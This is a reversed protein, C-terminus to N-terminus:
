LGANAELRSFAAPKRLGAIPSTREIAFRSSAKFDFDRKQAKIAFCSYDSQLFCRKNASSFTEENAYIVGM